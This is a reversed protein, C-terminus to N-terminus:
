DTRGKKLKDIEDQQEESREEGLDLNTGERPKGEEVLERDTSFPQGVKRDKFKEDFDREADREKGAM